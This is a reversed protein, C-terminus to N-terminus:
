LINKVLRVSGPDKMTFKTEPFSSEFRPLERHSTGLSNVLTFDCRFSLIPWSDIQM